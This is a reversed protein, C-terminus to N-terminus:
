MKDLKKAFRKEFDELHREHKQKGIEEGYVEILLKLYKEEREETQRVMENYLREENIRHLNDGNKNSYKIRKFWESYNYKEKRTRQKLKNTLRRVGLNDIFEYKDNRLSTRENYRRYKHSQPNYSLKETLEFKKNSVETTQEVENM